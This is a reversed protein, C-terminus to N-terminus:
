KLTDSYQTKHSEYFSVEVLSSRLSVAQRPPIAALKVSGPSKNGSNLSATNSGEKVSDKPM